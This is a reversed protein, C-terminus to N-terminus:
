RSIRARAQGIKGLHTDSFDNSYKLGYGLMRDFGIHACWIIGLSIILESGTYLGVSLLPLAVVYTHTINYFLSGFKSGALYGAGSIDPVFFLILFMKWSGGFLSYGVVAALLVAAGEARLLNRMSGRVDIALNQEM